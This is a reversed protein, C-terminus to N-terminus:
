TTGATASTRPVPRCRQDRAWKTTRVSAAAESAAKGGATVRGQGHQQLGHAEAAQRAKQGVEVERPGGPAVLCAEGPSVLARAHCSRETASAGQGGAPVLSRVCVRARARACKPMCSPLTEPESGASPTRCRQGRNATWSPCWWPGVGGAAHESRRWPALRGQTAWRGRRATTTVRDATAPFAGGAREEPPEPCLRAGSVPGSGVLPLSKAKREAPTARAM